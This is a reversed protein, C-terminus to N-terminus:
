VSSENFTWTGNTRFLGDRVDTPVQTLALDAKHVSGDRASRFEVTWSGTLEAAQIGTIAGQDGAACPADPTWTFNGSTIRRGDPSVYATLSLINGNARTGYAWVPNGRLTFTNGAVSGTLQFHNGALCNGPEENYLDALLSTGFQQVVGGFHLFQGPTATMGLTLWWNGAV